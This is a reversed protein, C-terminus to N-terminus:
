VICVKRRDHLARREPEALHVGSCPAADGLDGGTDRIGTIRVPLAAAGATPIHDASLPQLGGTQGALSAAAYLDVTGQDVDGVTLIRRLADRQWLPRSTSWELIQDLVSAM